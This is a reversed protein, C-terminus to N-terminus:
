YNIPLDVLFIKEWTLKLQNILQSLLHQKNLNFSWIIQKSNRSEDVFSIEIRKENDKSIRKLFAFGNNSKINSKHNIKFILNVLHVIDSIKATDVLRFQNESNEIESFYDLNEEILLLRESDYLFLEYVLFPGCENIEDDLILDNLILM